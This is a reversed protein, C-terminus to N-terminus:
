RLFGFRELTSRYARPRFDRLDITRVATSNPCLRWTGLGTTDLELVYPPPECTRLTVWQDVRGPGQAGTAEAVRSGAANRMTWRLRPLRAAGGVLWDAGEFRLNCGSRGTLPGKGTADPFAHALVTWTREGCSAPPPEVVTVPPRPFAIDQLSGDADQYRANTDSSLPYTGLRTPRVSYIWTLGDEPFLANHWTITGAGSDHFADPGLSAVVLSADASLTDTLSVSRLASASVVVAIATYVDVLEANRPSAYFQAASTAVQRLLDDAAGAGLGITHIDTGALKASNAAVLAARVPDPLPLNPLGDTILIIVPRAAPRGASDLESQAADLAAALDTAPGAGPQGIADHLALPDDTLGARLTADGHFGLVGIRQRTLDSADVFARAAAQAAALRGDSRMSQSEDLALIIDASRLVAAPCNPELRHRVQVVDGLRVRAPSLVTDVQVDCRAAPQAFAAPGIVFAGFSSAALLAFARRRITGRDRSQANLPRYTRPEACVPGGPATMRMAMRM